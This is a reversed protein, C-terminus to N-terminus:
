LASGILMCTATVTSAGADVFQGPSLESYALGPTEVSVVGPQARVAKRIDEPVVRASFTQSWGAIVARAAAEAAVKGGALDSDVVVTMVVNLVLGQAPKVTYLDGMPLLEQRQLADLRAKVQANLADPASGSTLLLYIDVYCPQPRIAAVDIIAGSTEFVHEVIGRRQGGIAAKELANVLRLRYADPSEADMGGATVDLNAVTAVGAVPDLLTAVQGPQLGNGAAGTLAAVAPTEGSLSGAPIVVYGRTLFVTEDSGASVRTGAPIVVAVAMAAALTFRLTCVAAAADLRPTEIGPQAGLQRLWDMDALAAYRQRHAIDGAKHTLSWLYAIMDILLMEAQMPYLTRNTAAEFWAVLQRKLVDPDLEFVAPAALARLDDLNYPGPDDRRM